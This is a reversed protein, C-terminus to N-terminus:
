TDGLRVVSTAASLTLKSPMLKCLLRCQELIGHSFHLSAQLTGSPIGWSTSKQSKLIAVCAHIDCFCTQVVRQRCDTTNTAYPEAWNECVGVSAFRRCGFMLTACVVYTPSCESITATSRISISGRGVWNEGVDDSCCLQLESLNMMKMLVSQWEDVTAGRQTQEVLRCYSLMLLQLCGGAANPISVVLFDGTESGHTVLFVGMEDGAHFVDWQVCM